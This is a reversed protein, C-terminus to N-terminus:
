GPLKNALAAMEDLQKTVATSGPSRQAEELLAGCKKTLQGYIEKYEGFPQNPYRKLTELLDSARQGASEPNKKAEQVFELVMRKILHAYGAADLKDTPKAPRACGFAVAVLVAAQLLRTAKM